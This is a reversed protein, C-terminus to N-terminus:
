KQALLVNGYKIFAWDEYTKNHPMERFVHVLFIMSKFKGMSILERGAGVLERSLLRFLLGFPVPTPIWALVFYKFFIVAILYVFSTRLLYGAVIGFVISQLFLIFGIVSSALMVQVDVVSIEEEVGVKAKICRALTLTIRQYEFALCYIYLSVALLAIMTKFTILQDIHLIYSLILAILGVISGINAQFFLKYIKM